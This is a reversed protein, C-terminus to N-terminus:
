RKMPRAEFGGTLAIYGTGSQGTMFTSRVSPSNVEDRRIRVTIPSPAGAREVTIEVPEGKEGRVKHM